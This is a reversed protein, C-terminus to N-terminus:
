NLNLRVCFNWNWSVKSANPPSPRQSSATTCVVFISVCEICKMANWENENLNVFTATHRSHTHTHGVKNGNLENLNHGSHSTRAIPSTAFVVFYFDV